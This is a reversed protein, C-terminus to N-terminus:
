KPEPGQSVRVLDNPRIWKAFAAQIEAATMEAYRKAALSPEDLSLDLDARELFGHAIEDVSDESLPIQRLVMAKVRDLEEQPVPKEQMTKLNQTIMNAAKSVNEPDSAYQVIYYGRTRGAALSSGVSYVLGANKRLDISLRSSYFGGGLVQNGLEIAYYDPNSRALSLNQAM